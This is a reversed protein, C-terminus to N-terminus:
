PNFRDPWRWRSVLYAKDNEFVAALDEIHQEPATGSDALIIHSAVWALYLPTLAGMLHGRNITRLRHALVFDYVIRTWLADSMRFSAAPMQSLHKLGLLSNPPLVLAWIEHLNTYALKFAALMPTVDPWGEAPARLQSVNRLPQMTRVRQWVAAKLNVDLFLSGAIQALLANLDIASPQPFTRPGFEVELTNFNATAAEAVPWLIADSQGANTFTQAVTALREAMRFSLGLDIALPYRPRAGYLARTVPYLIASNVLGEHPGLRYRPVVLDAPPKSPGTLAIALTRIEDPTLTQSEPGLILCYTAKNEQAIKFTNLYDSATLYFAGAVATTSTYPILRLGGFESTALAPHGADPSAVLINLGEPQGDHDAESSAFALALKTLVAELAEAPLATLSILLTGNAVAAPGAHAQEGLAPTAPTVEVNTPIYAM